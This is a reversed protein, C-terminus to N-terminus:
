FVSSGYMESYKEVVAQTIEELLSHNEKLLDRLDPSGYKVDYIRWHIYSRIDQSGPSIVLIDSDPAQDFLGRIVPMDRSTVLMQVGLKLLSDILWTRNVGKSDTDACEDLADLILISKQTRKIVKSLLTFYDDPSPSGSKHKECFETADTMMSKGIEPAVSAILQKTLSGIVQDMSNTNQSNYDFYM